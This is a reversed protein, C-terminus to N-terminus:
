CKSGKPKTIVLKLVDKNHKEVDQYTNANRLHVIGRKITRLIKAEIEENTLVSFLSIPRESSIVEYWSEGVRIATISETRSVLVGGEVFSLPPKSIPTIKRTIKQIYEPSETMEQLAATIDGKVKIKAGGGQRKTIPSFATALEEEMEKPTSGKQLEDFSLFGVNNRSRIKFAAIDLPKLIHGLLRRCFAKEYQKADAKSIKVIKIQPKNKANSVNKTIHLNIYDDDPHFSISYHIDKPLQHSGFSIVNENFRVWFHIGLLPNDISIFNVPKEM